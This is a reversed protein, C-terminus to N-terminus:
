GNGCQFYHLKGVSHCYQERLLQNQPGEAGKPVGERTAARARVVEWWRGAHAFATPLFRAGGVLAMWVVGLWLLRWRRRM